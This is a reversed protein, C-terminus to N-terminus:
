DSVDSLSIVDNKEGDDKDGDKEEKVEADAPLPTLDPLSSSASVTANGVAVMEGMIQMETEQSYVAGDWYKHELSGSSLQFMNCAPFSLKHQGVGATPNPYPSTWESSPLWGSLVFLVNGSPSGSAYSHALYDDFGLYIGPGYASGHTGGAFTLNFGNPDEAIKAISPTGHICFRIGGKFRTSIMNLFNRFRAGNVFMMSGTDTDYTFKSHRSYKHWETGLLSLTTSRHLYADQSYDYGGKLDGLQQDTLQLTMSSWHEDTVKINSSAKNTITAVRQHHKSTQTISGDPFLKLKYYYDYAGSTGHLQLWFHATNFAGNSYFTCFHLCQVLDKVQDAGIETIALSSPTWAQSANLVPFVLQLLGCHGANQDVTFGNYAPNNKWGLFRLAMLIDLPVNISNSETVVNMAGLESSGDAFMSALPSLIKNDFQKKFKKPYVVNKWNGHPAADQSKAYVLLLLNILSQKGKYFAGVQAASEATTGADPQEVRCLYLNNAHPIAFFYLSSASEYDFM